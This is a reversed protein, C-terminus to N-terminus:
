EGSLLLEISEQKATSLLNLLQPVNQQLGSKLLAGSRSKCKRYLSLIHIELLRTRLYSNYAQPLYIVFHFWVCQFICLNVFNQGAIFIINTNYHIIHKTVLDFTNFGRNINLAHNILLHGETIFIERSRHSLRSLLLQCFIFILVPCMGM